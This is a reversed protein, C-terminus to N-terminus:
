LPHAAASYRVLGALSLARQVWDKCLYTRRGIERISSVYTWTKREGVAM